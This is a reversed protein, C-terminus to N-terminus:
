EGGLTTGGDTKVHARRRVRDHQRDVLLALDLSAVPGLWTPRYLRALERGHGVTIDPVPGRGEEGGEVHEVARHDAAAHLPMAVLLKEAKEVSDLRGRRGALQHVGDEVVVGGMLM